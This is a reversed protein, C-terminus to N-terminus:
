FFEDANFAPGKKQGQWEVTTERQTHIPVQTSPITGLINLEIDAFSSFGGISTGTGNDPHRCNLSVLLSFTSVKTFTMDTIFVYSGVNSRGFLGVAIAQALLSLLNCEVTRAILRRFRGPLHHNLQTSHSEVRFRLDLYYIMSSTILVDAGVTGGLWIYVETQLLTIESVLDHTAATYAIWCNMCWGSISLCGIVAPLIQNKRISMIWVRWAYFLQVIVGCLGFFFGEAPVAWHTFALRAPNAYNAVALDYTWMGTAITDCICMSVCLIILAKFWWRDTPFKSFYTWAACLVIGMTLYSLYNSVVVGGLSINIQAQEEASLSPM